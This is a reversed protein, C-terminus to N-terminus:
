YVDKKNQNDKRQVNKITVCSGQRYICYIEDKLNDYFHGVPFDQISHSIKISQPELKADMKWENEMM